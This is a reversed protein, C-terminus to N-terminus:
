RSTSADFPKAVPQVISFDYVLMGQEGVFYDRNAAVDLNFVPATGAPETSQLVASGGLTRVLDGPKLDRAMTWGKGVKWFRHIGTALVSESDMSLKLLPAPPNRHVLLVPQYSLAGTAPDQSLVRDGVMMSEIPKAGEITHVPTGAAFCSTHAWVRASRYPTLTYIPKAKPSSSQFAYGLEDDWWKKWADHDDGFDQGTAAKVLPLVRENSGRIGGNIREITAVDDREDQRAEQLYRWQDAIASLIVVDTRVAAMLTANSLSSSPFATSAQIPKIKGPITIPTSPMATAIGGLYRANQGLAALLAPNFGGGLPIDDSFIRQPLNFWEIAGVLYERQVNYQEGEVFLRGPSGDDGVGVLKYKFPKHILDILSDLYDHPDRRALYEAARGRVEHFDSYAALMALDRSASPGDIQALIRAARQQLRANDRVFVSWVMPVARPDTIADLAAEAQRRKEDDRNSLGDRYKELLPKWYKDAHKQADAEAKEAAREEPRSWRGDHKKYGLKMWVADRGPDIRLVARYHAEAQDKLGNKDCWQALRQQADANDATRARRHNYEAMTARIEPDDEIEARVQDPRVWKGNYSVQGLLGRATPNAPDLLTARSLHKVREATLGHAECWLALKIQDDATRGSEAKVAQYAKLDARTDLAPSAAQGIIASCLLLAATM